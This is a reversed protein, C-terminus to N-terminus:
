DCCFEDGSVVGVNFSIFLIKVIFMILKFCDDCIVVSLKERKRNVM